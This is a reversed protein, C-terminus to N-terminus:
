IAIGELEIRIQRLAAKQRDNLQGVYQFGSAGEASVTELLSSTGKTLFISSALETTIQKLDAPAPLEIVVGTLLRAITAEAADLASQLVADTESSVPVQDLAMRLESVTVWTSM